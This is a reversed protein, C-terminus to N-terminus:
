SSRHEAHWRRGDFYISNDGTCMTYYIGQETIESGDMHTPGIDGFQVERSACMHVWGDSRRVVGLKQYM